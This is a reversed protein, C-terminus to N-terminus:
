SLLCGEAPEKDLLNCTAITENDTGVHLVSETSNFVLSYIANNPGNPNKLLNILEGTTTNWIGVTSDVSESFLLQEEISSSLTCVDDTHGKLEKIVKNNRLDLAYIEGSQAGLYLIENLGLALTSLSYRGPRKFQTVTEYSKTDWIKIFGSDLLTILRSNDLTLALKKITHVDKMKKILGSTKVDWICTTQDVAASYLTQTERDLALSTINNFHELPSTIHEATETNWVDIFRATSSFLRTEDAKLVLDFVRSEPNNGFKKLLEGNIANVAKIPM